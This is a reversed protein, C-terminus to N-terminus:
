GLFRDIDKQTACKLKKRENGLMSVFMKMIDVYTLVKLDIITLGIKYCSLLFEHEPFPSKNESNSEIKQIKEILELDIFAILPM